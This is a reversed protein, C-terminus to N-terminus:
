LCEGEMMVIKVSEAVLILRASEGLLALNVPEANLTAGTPEAVLLIDTPWCFPTDSGAGASTAPGWSYSASASGEYQAQGASQAASWGYSTAVTGGGPSVGGSTAPGWSIASSVEGATATFGDVSAPGWTISGTAVGEAPAATEVEAPGWGYSAAVAGGAGGSGEVTAPGWSYAGDVSGSATATGSSTGEGWGYGGGSVAGDSDREGSAVADGWGYAAGVAGGASASGTSAAPGFGYAAAAVGDAPASGVSGAPGFAYAAAVAGEAPDSSSTTASDIATWASLTGNDITAVRIDYSADPDLGDLTLSNSGTVHRSWQATTSAKNLLLNTGVPVGTVVPSAQSVIVEFARAPSLEPNGELVKAVVGAVQPAAFSTGSDTGTASDSTFYAVPVTEALALVDMILGWRSGSWKANSATTGGVVLMDDWGTGTDTVLTGENGIAMTVPIGADIFKQFIATVTAYLSSGNVPWYGAYQLVAPRAVNAIVWDAADDVAAWDVESINAEFGSGIRVPVLTAGPATGLTSGVAASAVETGHGSATPGSQDSGGTGQGPISYGAAVRGTFQTHTLRCGADFVVVNVGDGDFTGPLSTRRWEVAYNDAGAVSGFDIELSRNGGVVDLGTPTAPPNQPIVFSVTASDASGGSFAGRLSGSASSTVVSTVTHLRSPIGPLTEYSRTTNTSTVTGQNTLAGQTRAALVWGLHVVNRDTLAFPSSQWYAAGGLFNEPTILTPAGIGVASGSYVLIKAWGGGLWTVPVNGAAVTGTARRYYLHWGGAAGDSLFGGNTYGSPASNSTRSGDYVALVAYDGAALAPQAVNSTGAAGVETFAGVSKYTLDPM